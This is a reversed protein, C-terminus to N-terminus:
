KTDSRPWFFEKNDPRGMPKPHGISEGCNPCKITQSARKFLEVAPYGRGQLRWCVIRRGHHDTLHSQPNRKFWEDFHPGAVFVIHHM